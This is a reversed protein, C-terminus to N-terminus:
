GDHQQALRSWFRIFEREHGIGCELALRQGEPLADIGKRLQEYEALRAKHAQLQTAALTAPDGGFFLKLTASDRLEYLDTAPQNRWSELAERGRKTLRYVRRRRGTQEQREDLLGEAALRACETYLQTHPVSWFNNTSLQAFQKLDYPTAPEGQELLGLVIYSTETLRPTAVASSM